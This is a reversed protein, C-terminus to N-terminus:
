NALEISFILLGARDSRRSPNIEHRTSKVRVERKSRSSPCVDRLCRCDLCIMIPGSSFVVLAAVLAVAVAVCGM